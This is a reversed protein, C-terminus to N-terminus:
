RGAMDIFPSWTLAPMKWWVQRDSERAIAGLGSAGEPWHRSEGQPPVAQPSRRDSEAATTVPPPSVRAVKARKHADSRSSAVPRVPLPVDTSALTAAAPAELAVQPRDVPAVDAPAIAATEARPVGVLRVRAVSSATAVGAPALVDIRVDFVDPTGDKITLHLNALDAARLTWTSADRREGRSLVIAAPVDRLVVRMGADQSGVLQLAFPANALTARNIAVDFAEPQLEPAIPWNQGFRPMATAAEPVWHALAAIASPVQLNALVTQGPAFLHLCLLVAAGATGGGALGLGFYAAVGSRYTIRETSTRGDEASAASALRQM